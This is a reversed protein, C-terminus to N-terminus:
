EERKGYASSDWKEGNDENWGLRTDPCCRNGDDGPEDKYAVKALGDAPSAASTGHYADEHASEKGHANGVGNTHKKTGANRLFVFFFRLMREPIHYVIYIFVAM